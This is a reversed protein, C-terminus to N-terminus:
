EGIVSMHLTYNETSIEIASIIGNNMTIAADYHTFGNEEFAVTLKWTTLAGTQTKYASQIKNARAGSFQCDLICRALYGTETSSLDDPPVLNIYPGPRDNSFSWGGDHSFAPTDTLNNERSYRAYVSLGNEFFVFPEATLKVNVQYSSDVAVDVRADFTQVTGDPGTLTGAYTHRDMRYFSNLRELFEDLELDGTHVAESPPEPRDPSTIDLGNVADWTYTWGFAYVIYDFTLPFYTVGNYLFLPHDLVSNDVPVQCVIM